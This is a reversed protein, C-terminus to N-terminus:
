RRGKTYKQTYDWITKLSLFVRWAETDEGEYVKEAYKGDRIQVVRKEDVNVGIAKLASQYAQLQVRVLNENMSATTKWDILVTKGGIECVCDVTGAYRLTPHYILTETMKVNPNVADFWQMWAEFYGAYEDSIDSVGVSLFLDIAEHVSTGRRAAADMVYDPIGGYTDTKLPEMLRTVSPLVVGDLRYTHTESDFDLVKSPTLFENPLEM